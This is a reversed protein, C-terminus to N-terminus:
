ISETGTLHAWREHAAQRTIGAAQGIETWSHGATRAARVAETLRAQAASVAWAEARIQELTQAQGIHALWEARIQAETTEPPDAHRDPASAAPHLPGHWGCECMGRWGIAGAGDRTQEPHATRGDPGVPRVLVQGATWGVSVAGDPWVAPAWGEHGEADETIWAM